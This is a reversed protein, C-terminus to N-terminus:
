ENGERWNRGVLEALTKVLLANVRVRLKLDLLGPTETCTTRSSGQHFLYDEFSGDCQQYIVGNKVYGGDLDGDPLPEFFTEETMRLAESLPGPGTSKEFTYLYYREEEFDEHLSIFGHEGFKLLQDKFGLLISGEDSVEPIGSKTHCFGRNPDQGKYNTRSQQFFGTPNVLPLFHINISDRFYLYHDRIFKLVGWVGAPEDGHFGAAVLISPKQPLREKPSLLVIPLSDTTGLETLILDGEAVVLKLEDYFCNLSYERSLNNMRYEKVAAEKDGCMARKELEHIDTM